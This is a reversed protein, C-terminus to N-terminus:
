VMGEALLSLTVLVITMLVPPRYPLECQRDLIGELAM